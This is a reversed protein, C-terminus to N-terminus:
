EEMIGKRRNIKLVYIYLEVFFAGGIEILMQRVSIIYLKNCVYSNTEIDRKQFQCNCM